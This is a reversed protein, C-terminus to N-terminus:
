TEGNIGAGESDECEFVWHQSEKDTADYVKPYTFGGRVLCRKTEKRLQVGDFDVPLFLHVQIMNKIHEPEDDGFDTPMETYNFVFYKEPDGQKMNPFVPLGVPELAAILKENVTM